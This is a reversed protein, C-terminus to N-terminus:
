TKLQGNPQVLDVGDSINVQYIPLELGYAEQFGKRMDLKFKEVGSSKVLNLTCGGFGGGMMRSGLVDFNNHTLDVLTDLEPVSVEYLFRLGVHTTYMLKGFALLNNKQLAECAAIVRANEEIVYKCRNYNVPNLESKYKELMDSSVDRLSIIEPDYKKLKAVATECQERRVNYETEALSHQVQSDCLLLTYEGLRLPFYHYELSRCDLLIVNGDKGFTSAFMDMIGCRMQPFEHEAQQALQVLSLPDVNFEELFALGFALGCELAASSSLGAGVPINGGFVCDFASTPYERKIFQSVVGMLYNPWGDKLRSFQRIDFEFWEELDAAYIRCITEHEPRKRLGFVMEKDIAAPLVLGDNYDTHEGLLNIRGPARVLVPETSFQDLFIDKIRQYAEKM